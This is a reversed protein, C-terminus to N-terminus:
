GLFRFSTRNVLEFEKKWDGGYEQKLAERIKEYHPSLFMATHFSGGGLANYTLDIAVEYLRGTRMPMELLGVSHMDGLSRKFPGQSQMDFYKVNYNSLFDSRALYRGFEKTAEYCRNTFDQGSRRFNEIAVELDIAAEEIQPIVLQPNRNDSTLLIRRAPPVVMVM